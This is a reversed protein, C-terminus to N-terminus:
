DSESLFDRWELVEEAKDEEGQKMLEYSVASFTDLDVQLQDAKGANTVLLELKHYALVAGGPARAGCRMSINGAPGLLSPEVGSQSLVLLLSEAQAGQQAQSLAMFVTTITPQLITPALGEDLLRTLMDVSRQWQGGKALTRVGAELSEQSLQLQTIRAETIREFATLWDGSAEAAQIDAAVSDSTLARPVPLVRHSCPNIFHPQRPTQVSCSRVQGRALMM